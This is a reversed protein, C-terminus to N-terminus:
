IAAVLPAAERFVSSVCVRNVRAHHALQDTFSNESRPIYVVSWQNFCNLLSLCKAFSPYSGWAYPLSKAQLAKVATWSDSLISVVELRLEACLELCLLIAEFEAELVSLVTRFAQALLAVEWPVNAQVIGLRADNGVVSADVMFLIGSPSPTACLQEPEPVSELGVLCSFEQWRLTIRKFASDPDPRCGGIRAENSCHWVVEFLCAAFLVLLEDKTLVLQQFFDEFSHVNLTNSRLGWQGRFWLSRAFSCTGFLHLESEVESNCLYCEKDLNHMFGLNSKLPLCNSLIKWILLKQRPHLKLKWLCRWSEREPLFRNSQSLWYANKVSFNGKNSAKWFVRDGEDSLPRIRWIANAVESTFCQRILDEDWVRTNSMFLDSVSSFAHTTGYTFSQRVEEPSFGPVWPRTWIDFNGGGVLVGAGSVCLDRASLLSKWLFSDASKKEVEWFEFTSCYKASLAKVWPRDSQVLINWAFKAVLAVNIDKFRRLGLGGNRLPQCIHSWSKLALYRNSDHSSNCGKWWFRAVISDLEKCLSVPLRIASMTYCPISQLVSKILTLRGAQSLCKAKWGELRNLVKTKIFNFDERKRASVFFPNGLYKEKGKLVHMGMASTLDRRDFVSIKPSFVIGSKEKSVKQGQRLGRGPSFVNGPAGNVLVSFSVSTVCQMILKCVHNNFGNANLVEALFGWEIRDYAKHMDTKIGMFGKRGKIKRMTDMVEMALVSCEAIWRGKLFASQFPSIIKDFIPKLRDTLIRAIVKYRGSVFFDQVMDCIDGGITNWYTRYFVGSFGDPGPSKLPHLSWVANKIEMSTPVRGVELNDSDTVEADFLLEFERGFSPDSTTFLGKFNDEFYRCIEERNTIWNQPTVKIAGIHNRRRRVITATHFCKTNSDGKAVWLERSKQKWIREVKYELYLIELQISAEKACNESTIPAGQILSLQRHLTRLKRDCFGFCDRNWTKLAKKTWSLKRMVRFSQRGACPQNWAWDPSAIARDLRKRVRAQADRANYWTFASGICGLDIGGCDNVFNGLFYGEHATFERGGQKENANLIANLDGIILWPGECALIIGTIWEWFEAKKNGYPTGYICYLFWPEGGDLSEVRLCFGSDFVEKVNILMGQRWAVCFGGGIGVFGSKRKSCPWSYGVRGVTESSWPLELCPVEHRLHPMFRAAEEGDGFNQAYTIPVEVFNELMGDLNGEIEGAEVRRRRRTKVGSGRNSTRRGDKKKKGSQGRSSEGVECSGARCELNGLNEAESGGVDIVEPCALSVDSSSNGKFLPIQFVDPNPSYWVHAKRKRTGLRHIILESLNPPNSIISPQAKYLDLVEPGILQNYLNQLELETSPWRLPTPEPFNHPQQSRCTWIHPIDLCQTLTFILFKNERWTRGLLFLLIQLLFCTYFMGPPVNLFQPDESTPLSGQVVDDKGLPIKGRGDTGETGNEHVGHMTGEHVIDKGKGASGALGGRDGEGAAVKRDLNRRRWRGKSSSGDKAFDEKTGTTIERQTGKNTFCNGHAGDVKIWPGYMRVATGVVPTVWATPSLCERNLHALKGCNFCLYPLKEYKLQVWSEPNAGAKLFFGAPFPHIIWVDIWCRLFGWGRQTKWIGSLIKRVVSAPMTKCGMVKGVCAKKVVIDELTLDEFLELMEIEMESDRQLLEGAQKDMSVVEVIVESDLVENVIVM